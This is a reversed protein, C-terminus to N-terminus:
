KPPFGSSLLSRLDDSEVGQDSLKAESLKTFAVPDDAQQDSAVDTYTDM